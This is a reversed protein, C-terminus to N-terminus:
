QVTMLDSTGRSKYDKSSVVAVDIDADHTVIGLNKGELSLFVKLRHPAPHEHLLTDAAKSGGIFAFLDPGAHMIPAMTERGPGSVFNM